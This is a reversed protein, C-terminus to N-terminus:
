VLKFNKELIYFSRNEKRHFSVITYNQKFYHLFVKRTVSRWEQALKIDKAKLEDIDEPIEVAVMKNKLDLSYDKPYLLWKKTFNTKVAYEIDTLNILSKIGKLKKRVWKTKIWWEPSFRDTQLGKNFQSTSEGYLNVVYQRIIVGLKEINFYANRSQLPDFTWKILDLGQKLVFDRQFLKLRYGIDKNQYNPLVGLMRSTHYVKGDKYGVIGFCFGIMKGKEFAGFVLGGNNQATILENIPIIERPKFQWVAQELAEVELYESHTKLLRIQM